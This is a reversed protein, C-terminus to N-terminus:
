YDVNITMWQEVPENGQRAPAFRWRKAEQVAHRDLNAYGSSKELSVSGARGERTVLVKLTVRGKEATRPYRVPADLRAADRVDSRAGTPASAPQPPAASSEARAPPAAAAAEPRMSVEPRADPARVAFDPNQTAPIQVLPTQPLVLLPPETAPQSLGAKAAPQARRAGEKPQPKPKREPQPLLEPQPLPEPPKAVRRPEPKSLTVVIPEIRPADRRGIQPIGLLVTAHIVISAAISLALVRM